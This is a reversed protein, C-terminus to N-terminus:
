APRKKKKKKKKLFATGQENDLGDFDSQVFKRISLVESTSGNGEDSLIISICLEFIVSYRLFRFHREGSFIVVFAVGLM